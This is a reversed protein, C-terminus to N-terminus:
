RFRAPTERVPPARQRKGLPRKGLFRKPPAKVSARIPRRNSTERVSTVDGHAVDYQIPANARLKAPAKQAEVEEGKPGVVSVNARQHALGDRWGIFFSGTRKGRRLGEERTM